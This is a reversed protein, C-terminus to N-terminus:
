CVRRRETLRHTGVIVSVPLLWLQKATAQKGQMAQHIYLRAREQKQREREAKPLQERALVAAAYAQAGQSDDQLTYLVQCWLQRTDHDAVWHLRRHIEQAVQEVIAAPATM